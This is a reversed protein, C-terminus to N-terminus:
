MHPRSHRHSFIENTPTVCTYVNTNLSNSLIAQAGGNVHQRKLVSLVEFAFVGHQTLLVIPSNVHIRRTIVRKGTANDRTM